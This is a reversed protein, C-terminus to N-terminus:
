AQATSVAVDRAVGGPARRPLRLTFRTGRGVTSEVTITGGLVSTVLNHAINLGLGTAVRETGTSFFPEFIRELDEAAIGVGDDSCCLLVAEDGVPEAELTVVGTDRGVFAHFMANNLLNALVQGLQAPYSDLWLDEAIRVEVRIPTRGLLPQMSAVIERVHAVLQFERRTTGGQDVALEKLSSLLEGARHLNRMLIDTAAEAEDVYTDLVSRRLGEDVQRRFMRNANHLTSAAMLSNGIPANLEHTIDSVLPGLASLKGASMLEDLAHKLRAVTQELETNAEALDHTREKVRRELSQKFEALETQVQCSATVDAFVLLLCALGDMTLESARMQCERIEGEVTRVRVALDVPEPGSEAMARLRDCASADACFPSDPLSHGVLTDREFGFAASFAVNLDLCVGNDRQVVMIPVPSCQFISHFRKESNRLDELAQLHTLEAGARAAGLEALSQPAATSRLPAGFLLALHGVVRDTSGFRIAEVLFGESRTCAGVIADDGLCSAAGAPIAIAGGQEVAAGVCREARHRGPRLPWGASAWLAVVEVADGEHVALYAADARAGSAVAGLLQDMFVSAEEAGALRAINRLADAMQRRETVDTLLAVWQTVIADTRIPQLELSVWFPEGDAKRCPLEFARATAGNAMAAQVASFRPDAEWAHDAALRDLLVSGRAEDSPTAYREEFADNCWEIRGAADLLAVMNTTLRVVTALRRLEDEVRQRETIDEVLAVIRQGAGNADRIVSNYWQCIITVGDSRLSQCRSSGATAPRAAPKDAGDSWGSVLMQVHRGLVEERRWGFISVAAGNWDLIHWGLDFEIVALPSQEVLTRLRQERDRLAAEVRMRERLDVELTRNKQELSHFLGQLAQRTLELRSEVQGIEDNRLPVIPVTLEGKALSGAEESLRELPRGVRRQLVMLILAVSILVQLCLVGSLSRAQDSLTERFPGESVELRIRGISQGRRLVPQEFAQVRGDRREPEIQLTIRRQQADLVEVLVLASNKMVAEVLAVTAARDGASLSERIGQALIEASHGLTRAMENDLKDRSLVQSIFVGVLVAPLLVGLLVSAIVARRVTLWM